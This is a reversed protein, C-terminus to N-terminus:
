WVYVGFTHTEVCYGQPGSSSRPSAPGLVLLVTRPTRLVDQGDSHSETPVVNKCLPERVHKTATLKMRAM